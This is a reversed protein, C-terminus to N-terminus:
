AAPWLWAFAAGAVVACVLGDFIFKATTTWARGELDLRQGVRLRLGADGGRRRRPVRRGRRARARPV